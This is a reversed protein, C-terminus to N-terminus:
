TAADPAKLQLVPPNAPTATELRAQEEWARFAYLEARVQGLVWALVAADDLFGLVPIADIIADIPSVFYLLAGLMLVLTGRGVGRYERRGWARVLRVSTQLDDWIQALPGRAGAAHEAKRDAQAAVRVVAAPNHILRAAKRRERRFWRQWPKELKM